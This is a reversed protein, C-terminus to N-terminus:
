PRFSSEPNYQILKLFWIMNLFKKGIPIKMLEWNVAPPFILVLYPPSNCLLLTRPQPRLHAFHIQQLLFRHSSRQIVWCASLGCGQATRLTVYRIGRTMIVWSWTLAIITRHLLLHTFAVTSYSEPNPRLFSCKQHKFVPVDLFHPSAQFSSYTIEGSTYHSFRVNM